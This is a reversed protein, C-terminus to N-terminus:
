RENKIEKIIENAMIAEKNIVTKFVDKRSIDPAYKSMHIVLTM